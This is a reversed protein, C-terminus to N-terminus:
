FMQGHGEAFDEFVIFLPLSPNETLNEEYTVPKSLIISM